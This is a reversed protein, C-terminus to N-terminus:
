SAGVALVRWLTPQLWAPVGAVTMADPHARFLRAADRLRPSGDARLRDQAALGYLDELFSRMSRGPAVRVVARSGEGPVGRYTHRTGRPVTLLEGAGVRHWGDGVLLELHGEVVEFSEEAAPHVHAPPGHHVPGIELLMELVPEGAASLFTAQEGAAPNAMQTTV